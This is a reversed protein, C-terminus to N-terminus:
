KTKADATDSADEENARGWIKRIDDKGAAFTGFWKDMPVHMAGYNCDFHAHHLQHFYDGSGPFQFGDHGLWAGVSCDVICAVFLSPHCGFLVPILAATFYATSEVPHMNTGSFATPNYSKHHLGHVWRYLVKGVDPISTTKWPHMARHIFYFHPIRWHTITAIWLFSSLPTEWMDKQYPVAGSAWLHCMAVELVWATVMATTTYFADHAFQKPSPYVPNLKYKHLKNKLPSFYLFWDWFGCIIWAALLNRLLIPWMWDWSLTRARGFAPYDDTVYYMCLLALLYSRSAAALSTLHGIVDLDATAKPKPAVDKDARTVASYVNGVPWLLPM